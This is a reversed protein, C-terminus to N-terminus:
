GGAGGSGSLNRDCATKSCGETERETAKNEWREEDKNLKLMKVRSHCASTCPIRGDETM